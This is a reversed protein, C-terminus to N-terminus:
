LKVINIQSKITAMAKSLKAAMMDIIGLQVAPKAAATVTAAVSFTGREPWAVISVAGLPMMGTDKALQSLLENFRQQMIGDLETQTVVSKQKETELISM